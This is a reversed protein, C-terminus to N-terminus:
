PYGREPSASIADRSYKNLLPVFILRTAEKVAPDFALERLMAIVDDKMKARDSTFTYSNKNVMNNSFLEFNKVQQIALRMASKTNDAIPSKPNNVADELDSFMIKLEGKNEGAENIADELLPNSIFLLQKEREALAIFKKRESYDATESLKKNLEKDVAFYREKDVSIQVKELYKFLDPQNVLDVSQMWNYIDPNYEGVKPAFIYGIGSDAYTDVFRKNDTAWQKLENTKNIFVKSAKDTRPITYVSKGPNKGIFMALATEFPNAVETDSALVGQYIDWFASTWTSIGNDRIFNPLGKADKVGPFGPSIMGLIAQGAAINDAAIKLHYMYKQKEQKTANAPLGNGFAELYSIGQIVYNAKMRNKESDRVVTDWATSALMPFGIRLVDGLDTNRGIHGMAFTDLYDAAENTWPYITDEWNQPLLMKIVPLDRLLAKTLLIGLGAVPGAFAPVGADPSFSPNILRFKLTFNNFTGVKYTNDGTLAQITKNIVTNMVIDTPFVIYEDGQEDEYISGFNELGYHLLRMRMLARPGENAYLRYVRRHFDETARIFRGVHRISLAFNSRINPNDVFELLTDTANNVVINTVTKDAIEEARAMAVATDLNPNAEIIAKYHRDVLLQEFPKIDDFGKNIAVRMAPLRFFGTVQRDMMELAKEPFKEFMLEIKSLDEKLGDLDSVKGGSVIRTNVYGSTPRMGLTAENFEKWSINNAARSWAYALPKKQRSAAKVVENYKSGMLQFLKDNFGNSSGHFTFRMDTIMREAYIRAIEPDSLGKQRYYVTEGFFSLASKLVDEDLTDYMNIVDNYTAGMQEMIDTRAKAFDMNSKIGNNAFFVDVPNLYKKDSIKIQNYGFRLLFNDWMAIGVEQQTLDAVEKPSYGPAKELGMEKLFLNFQDTTFLASFYESDMKGVSLDRAGMSSILGDTFNPNNRFVRKWNEWEPGNVDYIDQIRSLISEKVLVPSLESMPIEYGLKASLGKRLDELLEARQAPTYIKRPDYPLGDADKIRMKGAMYYLSGKYPGIAASSGTVIQSAKIDRSFKSAVLDMVDTLPKTLYYFFGEDVNTRIGLRPVLTYAAWNNNWIRVFHSRLFGNFGKILHKGPTGKPLNDLKAKASLQYITDFPLAKIGKTLQSPHIGGTASLMGEGNVVNITAPHMQPLFEDAVPLNAVSTFGEDNYTKNLIQVIDDEDLNLRKMYAYQMNRVATLQVDLPEDLLMITVANAINKPLVLNATNRINDATDIANEGFYIPGPTRGAAVGLKYAIKRAGTIDKQLAFLDDIEPNLLKNEDDAVKTLVTMAKVADTDSKALIEKAALDVESTPNFVQYAVRHMAATLNRTKRAYPIGNRRFSLGNVRGSLMMNADDVYTFFKRASEADFTKNDVLIKITKDNYWEPFDFKMSELISAKKAPTDAESYAKLRPGLDVDWLKKVEPVDKFLWSYGEELGKNESVFKLQEALRQGKTKFAAQQFAERVGVRIGGVGKALSKGVAPLGLGVYTLPDIFITYFADVAGSVRKKNKTEYELAIAKAKKSNPNMGPPLVYKDEGLLFKAIKEVWYNAERNNGPAIRGAVLDRGPSLQADVKLAEKILNFEKPKDYMSIVAAMMDEDANGWLDIAGEVTHGEAIARMLTTFAAGYREEYSSVKDWDWNNLGNYTDSLIGKKFDTRKTVPLGASLAQKAEQASRVQSYGTKTGKEWADLADLAKIFPTSLLEIAERPGKTIFSVAKRLNSPEDSFMKRDPFLAQINMRVTPDLKLFENRGMSDGMAILEKGKKHNLSFQNLIKAWKPDLGTTIAAKYLNPSINAVSEDVIRPV